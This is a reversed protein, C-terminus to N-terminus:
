TRKKEVPCVEHEPDWWLPLAYHDHRVVFIRKRSSLRFSVLVDLDDLQLQKLRARATTSLRSVEIAHNQKNSLVILDHWTSNKLSAWFRVLDAADENSFEWKFEGDNDCKHFDWAPRVVNWGGTPASAKCMREVDIGCAKPQRKPDINEAVKPSRDKGM